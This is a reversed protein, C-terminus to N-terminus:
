EGIDITMDLLKILAGSSDRCVTMGVDTGVVTFEIGGIKFTEGVSLESVRM